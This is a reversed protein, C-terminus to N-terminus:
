FLPKGGMSSPQEVGFVALITPAIDYVSPGSGLIKRNSFIVGPVHSPDVCHDGSWRKSNDDIVLVPAGGVATQWSVRYGARTGVILDPGTEVQNIGYLEQTDYVETIPTLGSPEDRLQKLGQIIDKKISRAEEISVSGEQERDKINIFIQSFGLAFAKTRSWDVDEFLGGILRSGSKTSLYGKELLWTNLHVNRKYSTFGHDSVVLVIDRKPDVTKMVDGLLTDIRSYFDAIVGQYTAALKPDYAPHTKDRFRWYMHQIRDTTDFVFSFLGGKFRSFETRFIGESEAAIIKCLAIFQDDSLVNDGLANTDESMGLTHTRGHENALLQSLDPPQSIPFVPDLPDIHIPSMYLTTEPETSIVLFNVMGSVRRGFGSFGLSFSVPVWPSWEGIKLRYRTGEVVLSLGNPDDKSVSFPLQSETPQGFVANVAPGTIMSEATRGSFKLERIHGKIDTDQFVRPSTTFVTYLGLGGLLDPTGLGSIVTSSGTAPFTLPWRLVTTSIKKAALSEWFFLRPDFLPVFTNGPRRLLNRPNLQLLALDPIYSHDRKRIFDYVKHHKPTLGTGMSAWVVPSQSPNASQLEKFDGMRALAQFNPLRGASLLERTIVPDMGDVGILILRRESEQIQMKQGVGLAFLIAGVALSLIFGGVILKRRLTLWQRLRRFFGMFVAWAFVIGGAVFAIISGLGSLVLNTTNPDIYALCPEAVFIAALLGSCCLILLSRKALQVGIRRM